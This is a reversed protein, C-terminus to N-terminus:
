RAPDNCGGRRGERWMMWSLRPMGFALGILHEGLQRRTECTAIDGQGESVFRARRHAPLLWALCRLVQSGATESMRMLAFAANDKRRGDCHQWLHEVLEGVNATIDGIPQDRCIRLDLIYLSEVRYISAESTFYNFKEQLFLMAGDRIERPSLGAQGSVLLTVVAGADGEVPRIRIIRLRGNGIM